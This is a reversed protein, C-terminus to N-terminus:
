ACLFVLFIHEPTITCTHTHVHRSQAYSLSIIVLSTGVYFQKNTFKSVEVSNGEHDMMAFDSLCTLHHPPPPLPPSSYDSGAVDRAACLVRTPMFACRLSQCSLRPFHYFPTVGSFAARRTRGGAPVLRSNIRARRWCTCAFICPTHPRRNANIRSHIHLYTYTSVKRVMQNVDQEEMLNPVVMSFAEPGDQEEFTFFIQLLFRM